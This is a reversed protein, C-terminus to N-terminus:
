VSANHRTQPGYRANSTRWATGSTAGGAQQLLPPLSVKPASAEAYLNFARVRPMQARISRDAGVERRSTRAGVSASGELRSWRRARKALRPTAWSRM